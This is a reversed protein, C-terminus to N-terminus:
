GMDMASRFFLCFCSWKLAPWLLVFRCLCLWGVTGEYLGVVAMTMPDCRPISRVTSSLTGRLSPWLWALGLRAQVRMRGWECILVGGYLLVGDRM